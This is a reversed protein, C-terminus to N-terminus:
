ALGQKKYYARCEELIRDVEEEKDPPLVSEYNELLEKARERALELTSKKGMKVWESYPTKDAVKPIFQEKKWWERTHKTNLFFGPTPGVQKILDIALTADAVEVGRIFRGISGIMDNDIVSMVPDYTLEGTLGGVTNIMNVGSLASILIGMSREYGAQFDIKKSSTPGNGGNMIPIGYRKRWFQNYAAQYLATEIAGFNYSGTRMNQPLDFCNVIIPNGPRVLQVLVIGFMVEAIGAVLSGAVTAPHSGGFSGGCGPEVPFGAQACEIACGIASESYALPPTSELAGYIDVGLAQAMKIEWTHSGMTTGIRSIKSFYKLRSWTTVPIMMSPPQDCLESYPTYSTSAHVNELGDAIKCADHNDQTTPTRVEWTDLDVAKMGAFLSFYVRNGGLIIDNKPNLAKMHFSTPCKRICEVVLGPPVKIIGSDHDIKCDAKEFVKFARKGEVKIGTTELIELAGRHIDEIQEETLIELPKFNRVFGMNAM